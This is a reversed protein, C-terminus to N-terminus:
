RKGTWDQVELYELCERSYLNYYNIIFSMWKTWWTFVIETRKKLSLEDYQLQKSLDKCFYVANWCSTICVFPIMEASLCFPFSVDWSM